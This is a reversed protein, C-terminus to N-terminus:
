INPALPFEQSVIRVGAKIADLPTRPTYQRGSVLISGSDPRVLGAAIRILTSKGAGNEGLLAHVEAPEVSLSGSSLATVSGFTKVLDVAEFVPAPGTMPHPLRM